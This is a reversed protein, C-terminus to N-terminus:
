RSCYPGNFTLIMNPCFQELGEKCRPCTRDSDVMCGVAVIDGAKYKKVDSGVAAVRGVIEHGPVIPYVTPLVQSWENRVQHIDSHCIGCFLIDIQVDHEKPDRRKIKTPAVASTASTASYAKVDDM